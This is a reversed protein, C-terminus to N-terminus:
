LKSAKIFIEDVQSSTLGLLNGIAVIMHNNRYFNTAYEWATIILERQTTDSIQNFTQEILNLDFGQLILQSRLQLNSIKEPVQTQTPEQEETNNVVSIVKVYKGDVYEYDTIGFEYDAPFAPADIFGDGDGTHLIAIVKNNEDLKIKM